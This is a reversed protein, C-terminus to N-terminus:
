AREFRGALYSSLSPVRRSLWTDLGAFSARARDPLRHVPLFLIGTLQTLRLRSNDGLAAFEARTLATNAHWAQARQRPRALSRRTAGAIDAVFIGGPRLVRAAEAFITRITPQELHMLLHLAFVADFTGARFPLAAADAAAIQKGIHRAQAIRLSPQSADLAVDAFGTLRGTGCGLELIRAPAPPLWAALIARERADIFRGYSNAFRKQDYDPALRDYYDVIERKM